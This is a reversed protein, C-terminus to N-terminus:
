HSMLVPLTMSRLVTRSAGGLAWEHARGHGYCGMVLLDAGLDAAKSLLLEGVERAAAVERHVRAQVGHRRLSLEIDPGATATGQDGAASWSVLHVQEATRLFPLAASLARASERTPKWAVLVVSGITAAKFISPLLLAPKGSGLMVSEAFDPAVGALTDRELARSDADRQGLVLLDAGLAQRAFQSSPEGLTEAWELRALRKAAGSGVTSEFLARARARRQLEFEQMLPAMEAGASYALAYQMFAPLVSHLATAAADFREGLVNAIHLRVQCQPSDDMHMLISKIPSTM